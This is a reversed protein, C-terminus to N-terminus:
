EGVDRISDVELPENVVGGEHPYAMVAARRGSSTDPASDNGLLDSPRALQKAIRSEVSCGYKYDWSLEIQTDELGPMMDCDKPAIAAYKAYSILVKGSHASDVVPMIDVRADRVGYNRLKKSAQGALESAQMAANGGSSPNYVFTLYLQAGGSSKYEQVLAKYFNDDLAGVPVETDYRSMEVQARNPSLYTPHNQDCAAPIFAVACVAMMAMKKATNFKFM